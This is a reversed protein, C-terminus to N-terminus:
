INETNEDDNVRMLHEERLISYVVVNWYKYDKYIYRNLEGEKFFGSNEFIIIGKKDFEYVYKSIKDVPYNDFIQKCYETLITSIISEDYITFQIEIKAINNKIIFDCLGVPKKELYIINVYSDSYQILNDIEKKMIIEPMHTDYFFEKSEFWKYILRYNEKHIPKFEIM